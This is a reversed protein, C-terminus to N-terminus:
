AKVKELIENTQYIANDLNDLSVELQTRITEIIFNHSDFNPLKHNVMSEMLSAMNEKAGHLKGLHDALEESLKGKIESSLQDYQEGSM